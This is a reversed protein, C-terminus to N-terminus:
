SARGQEYQQAWDAASGSGAQDDAFWQYEMFVAYEGSGPTSFWTSGDGDEWLAPQVGDGTQGRELPGAVGTYAWSSGDWRYLYAPYGVHQIDWGGGNWSGGVTFTSTLPVDSSSMAPPQVIVRNNEPYQPDLYCTVGGETFSGTQGSFTAAEAGSALALM